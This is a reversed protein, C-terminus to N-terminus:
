KGDDEGKRCELVVQEIEKMFPEIKKLTADDVVMVTKHIAMAIQFSQEKTM